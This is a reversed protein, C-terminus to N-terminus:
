LNEEFFWKLLPIVKFCYATPQCNVNSYEKEQFKEFDAWYRTKIFLINGMGMDVKKWGDTEPLYDYGNKELEKMFPKFFDVKDIIGDKINWNTEYVKVKNSKSIFKVMSCDGMAGAYAFTFAAIYSNNLENVNNETIEILEVDSNRM